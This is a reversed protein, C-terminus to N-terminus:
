ILNFLLNYLFYLLNLDKFQFIFYIKILRFFLFFVIFIEFFPPYAKLFQFIESCLFSNYDILFQNLYFFIMIFNFFHYNIIKLKLFCYM